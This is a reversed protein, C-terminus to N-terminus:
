FIAQEKVNVVIFLLMLEFHAIYFSTSLCAEQQFTTSQQTNLIIMVILSPAYRGIKIWCRM